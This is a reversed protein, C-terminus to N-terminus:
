RQTLSTADKLQNLYQILPTRIQNKLEENPYGLRDEEAILAQLVDARIGNLSKDKRINLWDKLSPHYGWTLSPSWQVGGEKVKRIRDAPYGEPVDVIQRRIVEICMMGVTHGGSTPQVMIAPRPDSFRAMLVPWAPRGFETLQETAREIRMSSERIVFRKSQERFTDDKDLALQDILDTIQQQETPGITDLQDTIVFVPTFQFEALTSEIAAPVGSFEGSQYGRLRLTSDQLDTKIESKLWEAAIVVPETFSRGDVSQISLKLKGLTDTKVKSAVIDVVQGLPIQLPGQLVVNDKPSALDVVIQNESAAPQARAPEAADATQSEALVPVTLWLTALVCTFITTRSNARM